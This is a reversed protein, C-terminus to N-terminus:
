DRECFGVVSNLTADLVTMDVFNRADQDLSEVIPQEDAEVEPQEVTSETEVQPTDANINDKVDTDTPVVMFLYVAFALGILGYKLAPKM